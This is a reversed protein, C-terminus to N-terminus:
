RIQNVGVAAKKNQSRVRSSVWLLRACLATLLLTGGVASAHGRRHGCAVRSQIECYSLASGIQPDFSRVYYFGAAERRETGSRAARGSGRIEQFGPLRPM